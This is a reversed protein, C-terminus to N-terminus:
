HKIRMEFILQFDKIDLGGVKFPLFVSVYIYLFKLTLNPSLATMYLFIFNIISSQLLEFSLM